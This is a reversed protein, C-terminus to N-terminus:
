PDLRSLLAGTAILRERLHAAIAYLPRTPQDPPGPQVQQGSAYSGPTPVALALGLVLKASDGPALQLPGATVSIRVDGPASPLHGVLDGPHDPVYSAEGSLMGYGAAQSANGARWDFSSQVENVWGNLVAQAGAPARLLRLGLLAPANQQTSFGGEAFDADYAFVANLTEDYSLWDDDAGGIDPDLALGVYADSFAVGGASMGPDVKRYLPQDTINRFVLEILMLGDQDPPALVRQSVEIGRAVALATMALPPLIWTKQTVQYGGARTGAVPAPRGALFETDYIGLAVPQSGSMAAFMPMGTSLYVNQSTGPWYLGGGQGQQLFLAGLANTSFRLTGVTHERRFDGACSTAQGQCRAMLPGNLVVPETGTVVVQASYGYRVGGTDLQAVVNRLGVLDRVTDPTVRGISEGDILIRAGSPDSEVVLVGSGSGGLPGDEERCAGAALVMLLLLWSHRM